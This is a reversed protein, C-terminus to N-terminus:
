MDTDTGDTEAYDDEETHEYPIRLWVDVEAISANSPSPQVRLHPALVLHARDKTHLEQLATSGAMHQLQNQLYIERCFAGMADTLRNYYTPHYLENRIEEAIKLLAEAPEPAMLGKAPLDAQPTFPMDHVAFWAQVQVMGSEDQHTAVLAYDDIRLIGSNILPHQKALVRAPFLEAQRRLLAIHQDLIAKLRHELAPRLTIDLAEILVSRLTSLGPCGFDNGPLQFLPHNAYSNM